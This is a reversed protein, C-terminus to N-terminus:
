LMERFLEYNDTASILTINEAISWKISLGLLICLSCLGFIGFVKKM